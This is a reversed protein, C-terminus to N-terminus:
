GDRQQESDANGHEDPYNFRVIVFFRLVDVMLRRRLNLLLEVSFAGSPQRPGFGPPDISARETAIADQLAGARQRKKPTFSTLTAM